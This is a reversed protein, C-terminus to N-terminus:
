PTLLDATAMVIKWPRIKWSLFVGETCFPDERIFKEVQEESDAQYVILAGIDGGFPGGIVFNGTKQLTKLYERHLPRARQVREPDPAYDFIAAFKMPETIAYRAIAQEPLSGEITM